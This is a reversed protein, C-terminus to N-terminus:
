GSISSAPGPYEPHDKLRRPLGQIAGKPAVDEAKGLPYQAETRAEEKLM